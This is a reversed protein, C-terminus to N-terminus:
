VHMLGQMEQTIVHPRHHHREHRITREALVVGIMVMVFIVIISIAAGHTIDKTHADTQSRSQMRQMMELREYQM